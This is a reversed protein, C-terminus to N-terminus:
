ISSVLTVMRLHPTLGPKIVAKLQYQGAMKDIMAATREHVELGEGAFKNCISLQDFSNAWEKTVFKIINNNAM